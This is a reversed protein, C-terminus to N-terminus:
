NQLRTKLNLFKTEFTYYSVVSVGLGILTVIISASVQSIPLRLNLSQNLYLVLSPFLALYIPWHFVYFGFSIKGLFELFPLTFIFNVWQSKGRVAEYILLAFLFAFSTYGFFPLYPFAYSNAKNLFYFVFNLIAVILVIVTNYKRIFNFNISTTLALICGICIGDIRTFTYPNFYNELDFHNFWLWIRMSIVFVLFSSVVLLLIKPRKVWLIIFPWVLYFQEEVALSWFHVLFNTKEPEKFVFLWNQLFTWLWIQNNVYYELNDQLFSVSPLFFISFILVSYYLPFIRLIRKLFFNKLYDKRYLTKLLIETILFGSLVFFLDVGLWGFYFYSAFGFNHFFVVM